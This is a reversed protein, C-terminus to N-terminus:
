RIVEESKLSSNLIDFIAWIPLSIVIIVIIGITVSDLILEFLTDFMPDYM